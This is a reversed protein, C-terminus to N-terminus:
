PEIVQLADSILGGANISSYIIGVACMCRNKCFTISLDTNTFVVAQPKECM